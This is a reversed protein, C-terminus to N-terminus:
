RKDPPPLEHKFFLAFKRERFMLWFGDGFPRKTIIYDNNVQTVCLCLVFQRGEPPPLEHKFFLAFKRERFRLRLQGFGMGLSQIIIIYDNNVQTVCLCLM